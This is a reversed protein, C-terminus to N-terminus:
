LKLDKRLVHCNYGWPMKKLYKQHYEEAIYFKELKSVETTVVDDYIGATNIRENMQLATHKQVEDVYFIASRYQTGKDNGQQNLTSADHMKFFLKLIERYSTEKPDFIIEVMEAHGTGGKCVDEYSPNTTRGGCYGVKTELVGKQKSIIQEM